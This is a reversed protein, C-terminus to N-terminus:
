AILEPPNPLVMSAYGWDGRVASLLVRFTEEGIHNYGADRLYSAREKEDMCNKWVEACDDHEMRSWLDEDLVPYQELDEGIQELVRGADSDRRVYLTEIWGCAWHSERGIIGDKGDEIWPHIRDRIVAANSRSLADSDRHELHFVYVEHAGCCDDWFARLENSPAFCNIQDATSLM